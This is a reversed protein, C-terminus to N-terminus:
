RPQSPIPVPVSQDPGFGLAQIPVHKCQTNNKTNVTNSGITGTNSGLGQALIIVLPVM